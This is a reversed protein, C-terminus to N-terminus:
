NKGVFNVIAEILKHGELATKPDSEMAIKNLYFCHGMGHSVVVEVEKGAAKMAECYEMETDFLLDEEAVAVMVPPLNLAALPPAQLGMPSIIPHDKTTESAVPVALDMFKSIMNRTLFPTETKEYFSRRPEARLFGPHLAITSALRVPEAELRGAQAAVDHVVNGGTSDGILFM